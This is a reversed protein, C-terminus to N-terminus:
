LSTYKSYVKKGKETVELNCQEIIMESNLDKGNLIQRYGLRVSLQNLADKVKYTKGENAELHLGSSLSNIQNSLIYYMVEESIKHEEMFDKLINEHEYFQNAIFDVQKKRKDTTEDINGREKQIIKELTGM